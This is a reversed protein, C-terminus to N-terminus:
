VLVGCVDYSGLNPPAYNERLQTIHVRDALYIFKWVGRPPTWCHTHRLRAARSLDLKGKFKLLILRCMSSASRLNNKIQHQVNCGNLGRLVKLYATRRIKNRRAIMQRAWILIQCRPAAEWDKFISVDSKRVFSIKVRAILIFAVL